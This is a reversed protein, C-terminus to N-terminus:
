NISIKRVTNDIKLIYYGKKLDIYKEQSDIRVTSICVGTINYVYLTKGVGGRILVGNPKEVITPQIQDMETIEIRQAAEITSQLPMLIIVSFLIALLRNTMNDWKLNYAFTRFVKGKLLNKPLFFVRKEKKLLKIQLNTISVFM